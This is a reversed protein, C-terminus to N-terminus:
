VAHRSLFDAGVNDRGRIARITFCYPQLALAWRMLRGNQFQHRGLYQLPQHDTELFFRKGYLYEQFKQISWVIALCEKEITSYNMERPLLKKSAFAIPHKTGDDAEQFLVAGIGLQSADTQLCFPKDFDPSKLVPPSIVYRKLTNFSVEQADEWELKHPRGKTTLDTLPTAIEAFNPIFRRYYGLLGLFSRLQKVTEPRPADNIKTIIDRCPSLGHIGIVHGLFKITRLGIECKTPRLTLNARRVRDFFERLAVIHKSWDSTHTLVDDLYNDIDHLQTLLKRMMRSFTAPSNMLGFPMVTFRYMGRHTIFTTLDKDKESMAVQWYGKSFDFKSFYRSHKLKAFISDATPMPEPDFVSCRNLKRYDVCIRISQDPKRVVVIPSAYASTSPEIIGMALMKDLEADVTERLAFPLSYAKSTVPQNNTLVINHEVLKTIHPLDTFIDRYESVLSEASSLEEASLENGYVVDQYTETQFDSLLCLDESDSSEYEIVAATLQLGCTVEETSREHYQKLLNAHFIKTRTPLQIRYDNVGIRELVEFPGKWQMLLKNHDATLLLLVKDGVKFVRDKAKRNYYKQQRGQSELLEQHALECTDQLRNRLDVVYEYTTKVEPDLEEKTWLERLIQMPGRVSRGYLLEFPSFGLSEQPVERYAFLLPTVYRDWDKPRERSMKVIMAKLTGNFKEVLGNCMPHYATTVLQKFSLIRSVEKMVRSLFQTGQDSLIETPVGVRSFINVLAEAVTETEANKLPIAEPYRTAYDVLTLVFRNGQSSAPSFPGILDVAVRQFPIDIVPMKGLPVKPVRGRPVSRQCVDCSRVFRVVSGHMGPWWFQSCVRDYTKQIGLHGSFINEHALKMVKDRLKEPVVLQWHESSSKSVAKRYLISRRVKFNGVKVHVDPINSSERAKERVNHLSEDANQLSILECRDVNIDLAESVNLPKTGSMELKAQQRTTVAQCNVESDNSVGSVNGIILDYLPKRMCVARVQGKLFPTNVEIMAVPVRRITGDILVCTDEQGTLLESPVLDRRVVVTSCGTDRLVSVKNGNIYGETVPMNMVSQKNSCADAILPYVCGCKLEIHDSLMASCHHDNVAPLDFCDSCRVRKHARCRLSEPQENANVKPVTQNDDSFSRRSQPYNSQRQTRFEGRGQGLLGATRQRYFCNRALHGVKNCIFCRKAPSIQSARPIRQSAPHQIEVASSRTDSKDVFKVPHAELYQEAMQALDDITKPKREKLFLAMDKSCTTIYQERVMLMMLSDFDHNVQAMDVWRSLYSSLRALFQAPSEGQEAKASRFREKFGEETLQFRKLLALKLKDFDHAEEVPLRSYVELAKGKLLASLYIAWDKRRWGQLMAYREFRFLYSDLDDKDDDFAPLRPGKKSVFTGHNDNDSDNEEGTQCDNDTERERDTQGRNPRSNSESEKGRVVVNQEDKQIEAKRIAMRELELAVEVKRQEAELKRQEAEFKRHEADIRRQEYEEKEKEIARAAEREAREQKQQETVWDMLSKGSLGYKEGLATLREINSM